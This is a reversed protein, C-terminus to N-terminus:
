TTPNSGRLDPPVPDATLLVGTRGLMWVVSVAFLATLIWLPPNYGKRCAAHILVFATRGNIIVVALSFVASRYNGNPEVLGWYAFFPATLLVLAWGIGDHVVERGTCYAVTPAYLMACGALLAMNTGLVLTWRPLWSAFGAVTYAVSMILIATAWRRALGAGPHFRAFITLVLSLSLSLGGAVLYLTLLNPDV